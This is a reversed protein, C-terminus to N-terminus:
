STYSYSKNAPVFVEHVFGSHDIATAFVQLPRRNSRDYKTKSRIALNDPQEIIMPCLPFNKYIIFDKAPVM